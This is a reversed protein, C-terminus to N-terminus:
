GVAIECIANIEDDTISEIDASTLVSLAATDDQNTGGIKIGGKFWGIGDWDLTFANSRANQEGNGVLFAYAGRQANDEITEIANYEGIVFQSKGNAITNNGLAFSYDGNSQVETGLAFSNQANASPGNGIAVSYSKKAQSIRGIAIAYSDNSTEGACVGGGFAFTSNGNARAGSGMAFSQNGSAQSSGGHALSQTGSATTSAGMAVSQTGSAKTGAGMAVSGFGSATTGAGMAFSQAGSAKAGAGIAFSYAGSAENSSGLAVAGAGITYTDNEPTALVSRLSGTASGNVINLDHFFKLDNVKNVGDGIKIRPEPNSEDADYVIIEGLKPIFNTALAWNAAIDHKNIIRTNLNKEAM